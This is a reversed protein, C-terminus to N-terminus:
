PREGETLPCFDIRAALVFARSHSRVCASFPCILDPAYLSPYVFTLVSPPTGGHVLTAVGASSQAVSPIPDSRCLAFLGCSSHDESSVFLSVASISTHPSEPLLRDRGRWDDCASLSEPLLERGHRYHWLRKPLVCLQDRDCFRVPGPDNGRSDM